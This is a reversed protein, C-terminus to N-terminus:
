EKAPNRLASVTGPPGTKVREIQQEVDGLIDPQQAADKQARCVM